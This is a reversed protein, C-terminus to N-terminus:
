TASRADWDIPTSVFSNAACTKSDRAMYADLYPAIKTRWTFDAQGQELTSRNPLVFRFWFALYKDTLVYRTHRTREPNPVTFPVRRGILGYDVLFGLAGSIATVPRGIRQAIENPETRGYAIAQLM